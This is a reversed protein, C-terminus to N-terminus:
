RVAAPEVRAPALGDATIAASIGAAKTLGTTTVTM